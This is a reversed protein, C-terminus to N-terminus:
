VYPTGHIEGHDVSLFYLQKVSHGTVGPDQDMSCALEASLKKEKDEKNKKDWLSINRWKQDGNRILERTERRGEQHCGNRRGKGTDRTVEIERLQKVSQSFALLYCTFPYVLLHIFPHTPLHISLLIPSPHIPAHTSTYISYM